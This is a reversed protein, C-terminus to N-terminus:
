TTEAYRWHRMFFALYSTSHYIRFICVYLYIKISHTGYHICEAFPPPHIMIADYKFYYENDAMFPSAIFSHACYNM